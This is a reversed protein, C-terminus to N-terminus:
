LIDTAGAADSWRGDGMGDEQMKSSERARGV